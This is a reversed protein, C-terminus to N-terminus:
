FIWCQGTFLSKIRKFKTWHSDLALQACTQIAKERWTIKASRHPNQQAGQCNKWEKLWPARSVKNVKLPSLEFKKKCIGSCSYFWLVIFNVLHMCVCSINLYHWNDIFILCLIAVEWVLWSFISYVMAVVITLHRHLIQFCYRITVLLRQMTMMIIVMRRRWRRYYPCINSPTEKNFEEAKTSLGRKLVLGYFFFPLHEEPTSYQRIVQSSSRLPLFPCLRCFLIRWVNVM